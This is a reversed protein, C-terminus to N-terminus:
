DHVCVDAYEYDCHLCSVGVHHVGVAAYVSGDGYYDQVPMKEEARACSEGEYALEGGCEPCPQKPYTESEVRCELDFLADVLAQGEAAWGDKGVRRLDSVADELNWRARALRAHAEKVTIGM